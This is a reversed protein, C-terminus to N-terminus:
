FCSPSLSSIDLWINQLNYIDTTVDISSKSTLSAQTSQNIRLQMGCSPLHKLWHIINQLLKLVLLWGLKQHRRIDAIQCVFHVITGARATHWETFGWGDDEQWGCSFIDSRFKASCLLPGGVRFVRVGSWTMTNCLQALDVNELRCIMGM